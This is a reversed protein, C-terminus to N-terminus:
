APKYAPRKCCSRIAFSRPHSISLNMKRKLSDTRGRNRTSAGWRSFLTVVLDSRRWSVIDFLASRSVRRARNTDYRLQRRGMYQSRSNQENERVMQAISRIHTKSPTGSVNSIKDAHAPLYVLSEVIGLICSLMVSRQCIFEGNTFARRCRAM